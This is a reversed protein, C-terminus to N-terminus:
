EEIEGIEKLGHGLAVRDDFVFCSGMWKSESKPIDELYKLVGGKLHFVEEFGAQLMYNSAKECRIGGTCFMAIKKHKEPNLRNKVYDPFESFCETDPDHANEFTGMQVEFNNRTDIVFVDDRAILDNWDKPEVYTGVNDRPHVHDQKMTVIEKKLKVKMKPFPAEQATSFKYDKEEFNFSGQLHSLFLDIAEKHGSITGNIGEEAVLITGLIDYRKTFAKFAYQTLIPNDIPTFKYFALVTFTM